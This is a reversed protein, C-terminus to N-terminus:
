KRLDIAYSVGIIVDVDTFDCDSYSEPQFWEIAVFICSFGVEDESEEEESTVYEDEEKDEDDEGDSM